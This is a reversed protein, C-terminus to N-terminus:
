NLCKNLFNHLAKLLDELEEFFLERFERDSFDWIQILFHVKLYFHTFTNFPSSFIDLKTLCLNQKLLM